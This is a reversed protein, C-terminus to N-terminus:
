RASASCPSALEARCTDQLDGRDSGGAESDEFVGFCEDEYATRDAFGTWDAWSADFSALEDEICDANRACLEECKSLGCGTGAAVWLALSIWRM